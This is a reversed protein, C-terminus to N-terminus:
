KKEKLVSTSSMHTTLNSNKVKLFPTPGPNSYKGKEATSCFPNTPQGALSFGEKVHDHRLLIFM